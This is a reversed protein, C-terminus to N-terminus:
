VTLARLGARRQTEVAVALGKRVLMQLLEWYVRRRQGAGIPHAVSVARLERPSELIRTGMMAAAAACILTVVQAMAPWAVVVVTAQDTMRQVQRGAQPQCIHVLRAPAGLSPVLVLYAGHVVVASPSLFALWARFISWVSLQGAVVAVVVASMQLQPHLM